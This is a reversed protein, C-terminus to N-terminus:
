TTKKLETKKSKKPAIPIAALLPLGFAKKVEEESGVTGDILERGFAAAIGAVFGGFIAMLIYRNKPTEPSMPLSADDLVRYVENEDSTEVATTMSANIKQTAYSDYQKQLMANERLLDNLEQELAPASRYRYEFDSITKRLADLDKERKAIDADIAGVQRMHERELRDEEIDAKTRFSPAEGGEEKIGMFSSPLIARAEVIEQELRSIERRFIGVDPHNETYKALAQALNAEYRAKAEMKQALEFEEPSMNKSVATNAGSSLRVQQELQAINARMQKDANYRDIVADKNDRAVQLAYEASSLQSRYAALANANETAQEPLKGANRVKFAGIKEGHERLKKEAENFESEVFRDLIRARNETSRKSSRILEETFQRTVNQAMNPDTARFSVNFTRDSTNDIVLSRQINRVALEMDLGAREGWNYAGTQQIMKELFSRSSLQERIVAKREQVSSTSRSVSSLPIDVVIKAVSRYVVPKKEANIWGGAAVLVFVVLFYWRRNWWIRFYDQIELGSLDKM